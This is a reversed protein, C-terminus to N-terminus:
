KLTEEDEAQLPQQHVLGVKKDTDQDQPLYKLAECLNFYRQNNACSHYM